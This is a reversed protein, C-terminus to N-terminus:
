IPDIMIQIIDMEQDASYGGHEIETASMMFCSRGPIAVQRSGDQKNSFYIMCDDSGAVVIFYVPKERGVSHYNPDIHMPIVCNKFVKHGTIILGKQKLLKEIRLARKGTFAFVCMIPKDDHSYVINNQTFSIKNYYEKVKTFAGQDYSFLKQANNQVLEYQLQFIKNLEARIEATIKFDNGTAM